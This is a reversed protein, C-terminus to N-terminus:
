YFYIYEDLTAITWSEVAAAAATVWGRTRSLGYNGPLKSELFAAVAAANQKPPPLYDPGEVAVRKVGNLQDKPWTFASQRKHHPGPTLTRYGSDRVAAVSGPQAPLADRAMASRQMADLPVRGWAAAEAGHVM